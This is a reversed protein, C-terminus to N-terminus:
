KSPVDHKELKLTKSSEPLLSYDIFQDIDVDGSLISLALDIIYEKLCDDYPYGNESKCVQPSNEQAGMKDVSYQM